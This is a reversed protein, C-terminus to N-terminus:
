IIIVYFVFTNIVSAMLQAYGEVAGDMINCSVEVRLREATPNTLEINCGCSKVIKNIKGSKKGTIFEEYEAAMDIMFKRSKAGPVSLLIKSGGLTRAFALLDKHKGVVTLYNSIFSTHVKYNAAQRMFTQVFASNLAGASFPVCLSGVEMLLDTFRKLAYELIADSEAQLTLFMEGRIESRAQSSKIQFGCDQMLKALRQKASSLLFLFKESDIRIDKSKLSNLKRKAINLLEKKAAIVNDPKGSIVVTSDAQDVGESLIFPGCHYINVEFQDSLRSFNIQRRGAIIPVKTRDAAQGDLKEVTM